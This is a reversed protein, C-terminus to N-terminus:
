PSTSSPRDRAELRLATALVNEELHQLSRTGPIPLMVPSRQLLWALAVQAPTAGLRRGTRRLPGCTGALMGGALAWPIFPIGFQECLALVAEFGQGRRQVPEAGLRDAHGRSRELEPVSVNCVGIHEIKGEERLEVLGGVSEEIPVAPDVAHLQYLPM